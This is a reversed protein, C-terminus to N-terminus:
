LEFEPTLEILLLSEDGDVLRLFMGEGAIPLHGIAALLAAADDPSAAMVSPLSRPRRFRRVRRPLPVAAYRLYEPRSAARSSRSSAVTTGVPRASMRGSDFPVLLRFLEDADAEWGGRVLRSETPLLM